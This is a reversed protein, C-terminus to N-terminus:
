KRKLIMHSQVQAKSFFATPRTKNPSASCWELKEGDFRFIGPFSSGKMKGEVAVADLIMPKSNVNVTFTGLGLSSGKGDKATIKGDRITVESLEAVVAKGSKERGGPAQVGGM